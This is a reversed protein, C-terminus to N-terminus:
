PYEITAVDGATALKSDAKVFYEIVVLRPARQPGCGLELTGGGLVVVQKPDRIALRTTKGEAEIILRLVGRLCDIQRLRGRVKGDAQPGEWWQEVKREALGPPDQRNARAEAARIRALAEAKLRELERRKEEAARRREAAEFELIAARQAQLAQDYAPNRPELAVATKLHEIKRQFDTGQQALLFHPEAWAPNLQAAKELAARNGALRGYELWARANESGAKIAAELHRRAEQGRKERAAALGLGELAQVSEPQRKLIEEYAARDLTLDALAIEPDLSPVRATFDRQPNLPRGSLEATSFQGAALHAAAQREIEAPKKGLANLYAPEADAGQRLNYLLVKLKGSYEPHASLLHIRAWNLNREAPPLPQGALMTSGRMEFNSYFDALGSEIEPPLRGAVPEILLRACERLWDRPIPANAPLAGTYADRGLRLALPPAKRVVVRVPWRTKLEQQSLVAALGWHLQELTGLTERGAREGASTLVVFPGSRFEVRREAAAALLPLCLCLGLARM